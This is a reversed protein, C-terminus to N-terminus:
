ARGIAAIAGSGCSASSGTSTSTSTSAGIGAGSCAGTSGGTHTQQSNVGFRDRMGRPNGSSGVAREKAIIAVGDIVLHDTRLATAM